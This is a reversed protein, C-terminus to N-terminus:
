ELHHPGGQAGTEAGVAKPRCVRLFMLPRGMPPHGGFSILGGWPLTAALFLGQKIAPRLCFKAVGSPSADGPQPM